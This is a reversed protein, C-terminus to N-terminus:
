SVQEDYLMRRRVAEAVSADIGAHELYGDISGWRERMGHLVNRMVSRPATWLTAFADPDLGRARLLDSFQEARPPGYSNTLEYDDLISEDGVGCISLLVMAVVGTRDKGATCHFMVTDGGAVAEVVRSIHGTFEELMVLYGDSMEAEGFRILEGAEIRETLTRARAGDSSMALGVLNLGPPLRDPAEAVEADVRLDFVKTMGMGVVRARDADTMADLRDSRFVKGWRTSAGGVSPYGGLDRLNRPGDMEIRREAAVVFGRRPDFIHVFSRAVRVAPVMATGPSDPTFVSTGADDPDASVFVSVSEDGGRWTVLLRGGFSIVNVHSIPPAM